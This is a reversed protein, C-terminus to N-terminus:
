RVPAAALTGVLREVHERWATLATAREADRDAPGTQTLVLRAGHGTGQGLLVRVRGAPQGGLRWEYELMTGDEVETVIVHALATLMAVAFIAVMVSTEIRWGGWLVSVEGPRDALWTIGLALIGVAFLFLVIRIM